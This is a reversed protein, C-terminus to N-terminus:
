EDKKGERSMVQSAARHKERDGQDYLPMPKNAGNKTRKVCGNKGSGKGFIGGKKM